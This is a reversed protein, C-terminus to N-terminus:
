KPLHDLKVLIELEFPNFAGVLPSPLSDHHIRKPRIEKVCESSSTFLINGEMENLYLILSKRPGTFKVFWGQLHTHRDPYSVIIANFQKRPGLIWPTKAFQKKEIGLLVAFLRTNKKWISHWGTSFIHLLAYIYLIIRGPRNRKLSTLYVHKEIWM